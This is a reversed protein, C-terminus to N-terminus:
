VKCASKEDNQVAWENLGKGLFYSLRKLAM